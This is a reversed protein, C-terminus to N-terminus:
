LAPLPGAQELISAVVLAPLKEPDAHKVTMKPLSIGGVRHAPIIARIGGQMFRVTFKVGEMQDPLSERIGRSVQRCTEGRCMFSEEHKTLCWQRSVFIMIHGNISFTLWFCLAGDNPARIGRKPKENSLLLKNDLRAM